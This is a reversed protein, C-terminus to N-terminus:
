YLKLLVNRYFRLICIKRRFILVNGDVDTPLTFTINAVTIRATISKQAELFLSQAWFLLPLPSTTKWATYVTTHTHKHKPVHLEMCSVHDWELVPALLWNQFICYYSFSFVDYNLLSKRSSLKFHMGGMRYKAFYVKTLTKSFYLLTKKITKKEM